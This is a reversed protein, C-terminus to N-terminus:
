LGAEGGGVQDFLDGEHKSIEREPLRFYGFIQDLNQEDALNPISEPRGEAHFVAPKRKNRTFIIISELHDHFQEGRM